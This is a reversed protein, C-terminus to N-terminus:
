GDLTKYKLGIIVASYSRSIGLKEAIERQTLEDDGYLGYRMKIVTKERGKLVSKIKEHLLKTQMILSVQEDISEIDDAIKDEITVENGEKDVGIPEQLYINGNHKKGSRLYMLIENNICRSAYTAFRTGKGTEFSSIAKILGIDGVSLLDETDKVHNNYKKVIHAVLRLNKEILINRAEEDGNKTREIIEREEEPTLPTPYSNTPTIYSFVFFFQLFSFLM